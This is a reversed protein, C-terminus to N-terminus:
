SIYVKVDMTWKARTHSKLLKAYVNQARIEFIIEFPSALFRSFKIIFMRAGNRFELEIFSTSLSIQLQIHCLALKNIMPGASVSGQKGINYKSKKTGVAILVKIIM